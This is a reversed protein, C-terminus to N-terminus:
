ITAPNIRDYEAHTGIFRIFAVGTNYHIKVVLRYHNGRIDFIVRHHPLLDASPFRRKIDSFSKWRAVKAEHFWARLPMEAARHDRWFDVLTKRSIVHM